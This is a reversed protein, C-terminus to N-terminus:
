GGRPDAAWFLTRRLTDLMHETIADNIAHLGLVLAGLGIAIKIAFGLSQINITPITKAIFASAVTEMTIIGMLPLSVRMALETGAALVGTFLNVPLIGLGVAGPPTHAFTRCVALFTAELGGIVIFLYLAMYSLLEGIPESETELAPNVIAALGFGMQLGMVMGALQVAAIPLMALLGIVFGVFVEGASLWALTFVDLTEAPMSQAPLAPYVALALSVVLLVRIKAPIVISALLPAALLVGSLRFAVLMFPGLHDLLAPM